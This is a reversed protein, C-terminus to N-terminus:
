QIDKDVEITPSSSATASPTQAMTNGVLWSVLYGMVLCGMVLYGMVLYGIKTKLITKNM